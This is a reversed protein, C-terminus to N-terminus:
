IMLSCAEGMNICSHARSTFNNDFLRYLWALWCKWSALHSNMGIVSGCVCVCVCFNLSLFYYLWKVTCVADHRSSVVSGYALNGWLTSKTIQTCWYFFLVPLALSTAWDTFPSAVFDQPGSNLGQLGYLLLLLSSIGCLQGKVKVCTSHCACGYVSM